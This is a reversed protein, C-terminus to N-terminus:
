PILNRPDFKSRVRQERINGTLKFSLLNPFPSAIFRRATNIASDSRGVNAFLNVKVDMDLGQDPLQFTGDASIRTRPGNIELDEIILQEQAVTFTFDMHNLNFSTFNFLTDKLIDSLPGLLRISGLAENRIEVDGYGEFGYINELPGKAHLNLNVQGSNRSQDKTEQTPSTKQPEDTKIRPLNQIAKAQNANRLKLQFCMQKEAESTTLIDISANAAGDAYGFRVDRLYTGGGRGTLKFNLYDLPTDMFKLPAEVKAQLNVFSKDAYQEFKKNFFVGNVQVDALETLEFNNLVEAITGGLSKSIVETPLAGDFNYRVSLLGKLPKKAGTFALKGTAQGNSAQAKINYIETYGRQSRVNLQCADYLAENYHLNTAQAWGFIQISQNKKATGDIAFNGYGPNAPDFHLNKFINSWWRPLLPNYQQPLISGSLLLQFDKTQTNLNFAADTWQNSRDIHIDEFCLIEDRYHGSAIINDFHIEDANLDKFNAYFNSNRIKFEKDFLVSLDYFPPSDCTLAPLKEALPDSLLDLIDISGRANIKGSRDICNLAGKFSVSGKLGCTAGSFQLIPFASPEVVIRPANLKVGNVTLRHSSIEFNPLIGEFIEPWREPKVRAIINEAFIDLDAFTMDRARLLLPEQTTLQNNKFEFYTGASFYNGTIRPYKLQECSLLLAVDVTHDLRTSLYFQLTPQIFPSFDTKRTLAQAVLQYFDKIETKKTRKQLGVPWEISGRLYIDEHKAVFSKIQIKHKSPSLHFTVNKLVTTDKGNPAYIAPIKLTGSSLVVKTFDFRPTSLMQLRYQAEVSVASFLPKKIESHYVKLGVLEIKHWLKLRFSEAQIHFGDFQKKLLQQNAWNTPVPIHGYAILCGIVLSQMLFILLLLSDLGIIILKKATTQRKTRM